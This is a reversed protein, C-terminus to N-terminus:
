VLLTSTWFIVAMFITTLIVAQVAAAGTVNKPLTKCIIM